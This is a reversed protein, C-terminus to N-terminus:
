ARVRAGLETASAGSMQVRSTVIAFGLGGTGARAVEAEAELAERRLPELAAAEAM